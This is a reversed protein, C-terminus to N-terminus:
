ILETWNHPIWKHAADELKLEELAFWSLGQIFAGKIQLQQTSIALLTNIEVEAFAAGYTYYRFPNVRVLKGILNLQLTIYFGHASLNIREM